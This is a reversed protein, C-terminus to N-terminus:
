RKEATSASRSFARASAARAPFRYLAYRARAADLLAPGTDPGRAARELDRIAREWNHRFRRKAPSKKIAALNARARELQPSAARTAPRSAVRAKPAPKATAAGQRPKAGALTAGPPASLLGLVAIAAIVRM